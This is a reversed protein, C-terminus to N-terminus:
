SPGIAAQVEALLSGVLRLLEPAGERVARLDEQQASQELQGALGAVAKADLMACSGRLSHLHLHAAQLDGDAVSARVKGALAPIHTCFSQMAKEVMKQHGGMRRELDRRDFLRSAPATTEIPRPSAGHGNGNGRGSVAALLAEALAAGSVPKTVFHDMGAAFCKDREATSANATLAVIPRQYSASRLARTAEYGDMVPMLCDMLIVDFRQELAMRRAVDGDEAMTVDDLGIAKLMGRVVERNVPNDEAVLIRLGQPLPPLTEALAASTAEEGSEPLPLLCTFASGLGEMSRVTVSGGMLECLQRVISLGLGTGGYKRTTSSDAQSFRKFLRAVGEESIGIGTDQVTFALVGPQPADEIRLLVQGRETFKLANALLNGLVQRLRVPDCLVVRPVGPALSAAFQLGKARSRPGYAMSLEDVLDPLNTPLSELEVQGAEIKGIDLLDNILDLLQRASSEAVDLRHRDEPELRSNRVLELMGLVGNLPTRIEHSVTSLFDSKARSAKEAAEKAARVGDEMAKRQTIDRNTGTIRLVRGDGARHTVQGTSLIWLTRGDPTVVPHETAYSGAEGRLTSVFADQLGQRHEAPVSALLAEATMVTVARPLGMLQSWNESLSVNGTDGDFEWLVLGTADLARKQREESENLARRAAEQETLDIYVTVFGGAPMPAGRVELVTGDPRERRMAHDGPNRAREVITRVAAEPDGQGYEGRQANFRILDEFRTGSAPFLSDPFGLLTRFKRNHLVLNLDADFVSLGCPLEDVVARLVANVKRLEREMRKRPTIDAAVGTHGSRLPEGWTAPRSQMRLELETGAQPVVRFEQDFPLQREVAKAWAASVRERDGPHVRALWATGLADALPLGFLEAFRGNTHFVLGDESAQFIGLATAHGVAPFRNEDGVVTLDYLRERMALAAAAANALSALTTAQSESLRRPRHDIVCVTGITEGTPLTIPAGAYFRIFPAGTVLPNAQFRPDAAADDVEMVASPERIAHDCFAVSRGTQATGELGLNAKFWQRDEDVLSILAIPTGCIQAAAQVLADFLPEPGTDLVALARLRALRRKEAPDTM